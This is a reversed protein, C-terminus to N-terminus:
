AADLNPYVKNTAGTDRKKKKTILFIPCCHCGREAQKAEKSLDTRFEIFNTTKKLLTKPDYSNVTGVNVLNYKFM